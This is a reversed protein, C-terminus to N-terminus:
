ATGTVGIQLHLHNAHAERGHQTGVASTPHDPSMVFSGEGIATPTGPGDPGASRDQWQQAAFDYLARFFDRAVEHGPADDLRFRTATTGLPQWTGGPTATTDVTGWDDQVTLVQETGDRVLKVGVLDLARGQGHCDTRAGSGDGDVGLHYLESVGHEASLWSCLRVLAVAHRPDLRDPANPHAPEGVQRSGSPLYRVVVGAVNGDQKQGGSGPVLGDLDVTGPLQASDAFLITGADMLGQLETRADAVTLQRAPTGDAVPPPVVPASGMPLGPWDAAIPLPFEPPVSDTDVDYRLYDDGRFFYLHGSSWWRVAADLDSAFLGPWNGAIPMPGGVVGGAMTDWTVYEAGRFFHVHGSPLLVGADIGDPFVGPWTAAITSRSADVVQDAVLDYVLCEAGRFFSVTGDGGPICADIDTEFLGPWHEAIPLPYGAEVRDTAVDYRVYAAGDFFYAKEGNPTAFGTMSM